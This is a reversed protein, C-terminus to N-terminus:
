ELLLTGDVIIFEYNNIVDATIDADSTMDENAYIYIDGEYITNTVPVGQETAEGTTTAMLYHGEVMSGSTIRYSGQLPRGNPDYTATKDECTIVVKRKIVSITGKITQIDYVHGESFDITEGNEYFVLKEECNTKSVTGTFRSVVDDTDIVYWIGDHAIYMPSGVSSRVYNTITATSPDASSNTYILYGYQTRIIAFAVYSDAQGVNVRSGGIVAYLLADTGAFNGFDVYAGNGVIEKGNYQKEVYYPAIVVTEAKVTLKGEVIVVEYNATMDMGNEDKVVFSVVEATNPSSGINTRTGTVTVELVGLVHGELLGSYEYEGNTLPAGDYKKSADGTTIKFSRPIVTLTGYEYTIEYNASIKEDSVIVTLVNEVDNADWVNPGATPVGLEELVKLTHGSVLGYKSGAAIKVTTNSLLEGNYERKETATSVTIPRKDITLTGYEYTIDYNATVDGLKEDLVTVEFVNPQDKCVDPGVTTAGETLAKLTHGDVLGNHKIGETGDFVEGDYIKTATPTTVSVARKTITIHKEGKYEVTVEYNGKNKQGGSVYWDVEFEYFTVNGNGDFRVNKFSDAGLLKFAISEGVPKDGLYATQVFSSMQKECDIGDYVKEFDEVSVYVQLPYITLIGDEFGNQDGRMYDFFIEYDTILTDGTASASLKYTYPIVQGNEDRNVNIYSGDLTISITEGELIQSMYESENLIVSYLDNACDRGDYYKEFDDGVVTLVIPHVTIIGSNRENVFTVEYNDISRGLIDYTVTFDYPIVNGDADRRVHIYGNGVDTLIAEGDAIEGSLFVYNNKRDAFDKGDYVGEYDNVTISVNLKQIDIVGYTKYEGNVDPDYQINLEYNGSADYSLAKGDKDTYSVAMEYKYYGADIYDAPIYVNVAENGVLKASYKIGNPACDKFTVAKGDYKKTFDRVIVTVTNPTITLHSHDGETYIIKIDYNDTRDVGDEIVAAVIRYDYPTVVGNVRNVNRYTKDLGFTFSEGDAVEKTIVTACNNVNVNSATYIINRDYASIEIYLKQITLNGHERGEEDYVIDFLFVDTVDKGTANDIVSYTFTYTYEGAFHYQSNGGTFGINLTYGNNKGFVVYILNENGVEDETDVFRVLEEFTYASSRYKRVLDHAYIKIIESNIYVGDAYEIKIDYNDKKSGAKGSEDTGTIDYSVTFAKNKCPKIYDNPDDLSVSFIHYYPSGVLAGSSIECNVVKGGVVDGIKAGAVYYVEAPLGDYDKEIPGVTVKIVVKNIIVEGDEVTVDYCSDTVNIGEYNKITLTIGNTYTGADIANKLSFTVRYSDRSIIGQDSLAVGSVTKFTFSHVNFYKGDYTKEGSDVVIHVPRKLIKLANNVYEPAYNDADVHSGDSVNKVTIGTVFKDVDFPTILDKVDSHIIFAISHVNLRGRDGNQAECDITVDLAYGDYYKGNDPAIVTVTVPRPKISMPENKYVFEYNNVNGNVVTCSFVYKDKEVSDKVNVIPTLDFKFSEGSAASTSATVTINLPDADYIKGSDSASATLTVKRATIRVARNNIKLDYNSLDASETGNGYRIRIGSEIIYADTSDAVNIILGNAPVDYPVVLTEGPAATDSYDVTVRIPTGDYVKSGSPNDPTDVTVTIPRPKVELKENVFTFSYNEPDVAEGTSTKIVTCGTIYKNAEVADLVNLIQARAVSFLYEEGNAASKSVNIVVSLASADYIKRNDHASATVTVVRPTIKVAKNNVTIKYNSLDTSVNGNSYRISLSSEVIYNDISDKVNVITGGNSYILEEGPAPQQSLTVVVRIPTGDYEKTGGPFDPTTVNITIPRPKVELKENLFTFSYNAPDVTAGTLVNEVTCSTIYSNAAVSDKVNVIQARVVYYTYKEYLAPEKDYAFSLSLPSADYIKGNDSASATVTVTRPTISVARNEVTIKYNSLDSSTTGNSYRVRFSNEIIYAETSDKVNLITGCDSYVLTEGEAAERSFVVQVTIPTGDYEKYGLPDNPTLVSVTIERRLITLNTDNVTVIYNRLVSEGTATVVVDYSRIYKEVSQVVNIVNGVNNLVLEQGTAAGDGGLQIDVAMPKGDYVKVGNLDNPTTVTVSISRRRVTLTGFHNEPIHCDTVDEGNANLIKYTISNEYEGADTREARSIVSVTHGAAMKEATPARLDSIPSGSYLESKDATTVTVARRTIELRGNDVTIRYNSTGDEGNSKLVKVSRLYDTVAGARVIAEAHTTFVPTEGEIFSTGDACYPAKVELPLGDYEKSQADVRVTVERPTIKVTGGTLTIYYGETVEEDGNFIKLETVSVTEEGVNVLVTETFTAKPTHGEAFSGSIVKLEPTIVTGDYQKELAEVGVTIERAVVTILGNTASVKYCSSVDTGDERLIRATEGNITADAEGLDERSLKVDVSELSDGSVLGEAKIAPTAKWQVTPEALSLMLDKQNIVFPVAKSHGKFGFAKNSEARVFYEGALSPAEDTWEAGDDSYQLSVKAFLAFPEDFNVSEGYTYESDGKVNGIIIGKTLLFGSLLLLGAAILALVCMLVAVIVNKIAAIKKIKNAYLEYLM